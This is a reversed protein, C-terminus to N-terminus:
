AAQSDARLNVGPFIRKYENSNMLNRVKRGFRFALEATHTTQMIKLNPNRGMMWSPLMYSAFESKTHRPPMNVILRKIEGSALKDFKQAMIKHHRGNIFEPWALQVYDLFNTRAKEAKTLTTARELLAAYSKLREEPITLRQDISM